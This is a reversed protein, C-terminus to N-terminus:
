WPHCQDHRIKRVLQDLARVFRQGLQQEIMLLLTYGYRATEVAVVGEELLKFVM